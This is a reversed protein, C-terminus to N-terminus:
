GVKAAGGLQRASSGVRLVSVAPLRRLRRLWHRRRSGHGLLNVDAIGPRGPRYGRMVEDALGLNALLSGSPLGPTSERGQEDLFQSVPRAPMSLPLDLDELDGGLVVMENAAGEDEVPRGKRLLRELTRACTEQDRGVPAQDVFPMAGRKLYLTQLREASSDFVVIRDCDLARATALSRPEVLELQLGAETAVRAIREIVDRWAAVVCVRYGIDTRELIDWDWCIRDLPLPIDKDLMYGLARQVHRRPMAPLEVQRFIAAEDPLTFRARVASIGSEKIVQKLLEAVQGPDVPDGNRVVRAPLDRISWGIVGGANVQLVTLRDLGFDVCLVPQRSRLTM